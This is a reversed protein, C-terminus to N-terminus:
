ILKINHRSAGCQGSQASYALGAQRRGTIPQASLRGQSTMLSKVAKAIHKQSFIPEHYDHDQFQSRFFQHDLNWMHFYRIELAHVLYVMSCGEFWISWCFIFFRAWKLGLSDDGNGLWGLIVISDVLLVIFYTVNNHYSSFLLEVSNM